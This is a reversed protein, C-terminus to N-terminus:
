SDSQSGLIGTSPGLSFFQPGRSGLWQLSVAQYKQLSVGRASVFFPLPFVNSIVTGGRSQFGTGGEVPFDLYMGEGPFMEM